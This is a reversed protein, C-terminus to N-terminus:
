DRKRTLYLSIGTFLALAIFALQFKQDGTM